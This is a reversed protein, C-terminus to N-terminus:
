AIEFRIHYPITHIVKDALCRFQSSDSLWMCGRYLAKYYFWPMVNVTQLESLEHEAWYYLRAFNWRYAFGSLPM